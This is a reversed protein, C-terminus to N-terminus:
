SETFNDPLRVQPLPYWFKAVAHRAGVGLSNERNLRYFDRMCNWGQLSINSYDMDEEPRLYLHDYLINRLQRETFYPSPAVTFYIDENGTAVLPMDFVSFKDFGIFFSVPPVYEGYYLEILTCKEPMVKYQLYYHIALEAIQEAPDHAFLGFFLRRGAHSATRASLEDFVDLIQAHQTGAFVKRYDGYFHIGIQYSECLELFDPHNMMQAWGQSAMQTYEDGRAMLDPGFAPALVTDIGYQFLMGYLRVYCQIMSELYLKEPNDHDTFSHELMFWRRTGNIPFVCVKPGAERVTHAIEEAPLSLFTEINMM